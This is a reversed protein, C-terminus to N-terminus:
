ILHVHVALSLGRQSAPATEEKLANIENRINRLINDDATRVPEQARGHVRRKAISTRM